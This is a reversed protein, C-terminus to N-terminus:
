KHKELNRTKIERHADGELIGIEDYYMITGLRPEWHEGLIYRLEIHQTYKLTHHRLIGKVKFNEAEDNGIEKL